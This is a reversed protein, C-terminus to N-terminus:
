TTTTPNKQTAMKTAGSSLVKTRITGPANKRTPFCRMHLRFKPSSAQQMTRRAMIAIQTYSSHKAVTPKRSEATADPRSHSAYISHLSDYEDDTASKEVALLTYYSTKVTIGQGPGNASQGAGMKGGSLLEWEEPSTDAYSIRLLAWAAYELKTLKSILLCSLVNNLSDREAVLTKHPQIIVNRLALAARAEQLVGCFALGAPWVTRQTAHKSGVGVGRTNLHM